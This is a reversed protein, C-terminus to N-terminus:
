DLNLLFPFKTATQLESQTQNKYNRVSKILSRPWTIEGIQAKNIPKKTTKKPQTNKETLIIITLRVPIHSILYSYDVSPLSTNQHFAGCSCLVLNEFAAPRPGQTKIMM